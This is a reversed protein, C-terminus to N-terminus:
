SRWINFTLKKYRITYKRNSARYKVVVIDGLPTTHHLHYGVNVLPIEIIGDHISIKENTTFDRKTHIWEHIIFSNENLFNRVAIKVSDNSM